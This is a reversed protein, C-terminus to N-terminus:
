WSWQQRGPLSLAPLVADCFSLEQQGVCCWRVSLEAGDGGGEGGEGDEAELEVKGKGERERESEGSSTQEQLKRNSGQQGAKGDSLPWILGGM